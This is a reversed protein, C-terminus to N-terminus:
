RKSWVHLGKGDRWILAQGQHLHFGAAARDVVRVPVTDAYADINEGRKVSKDVLIERPHSALAERAASGYGGIKGAFFGGAFLLVLIAVAIARIWRYLQISIGGKVFLWVAFPIAPLLYVQLKSSICSLLIFTVALTSCLLRSLSTGGMLRPTRIWRWAMFLSWPAMVYWICIAYYYFPQRHHFANHARDVTQHFLLNDLYERGGEMYVATFWLTCGALIVIWAYGSWIRFFKSPSRQWLTWALTAFVPIAVGLPGKTFLALFTYLGLLLARSPTAGEADLRWVQRLALVIWLTMLMDMRLTLGLAPFYGCTFLMLLATRRQTLTLRPALWRDMVRGTLLMPILSFLSLLCMLHRGAALRCLMVLWLYLPPKDAYPLGHNSFCWLSGTRLAEDAISLYRLENDPTFDRFIMAPVMAIAALLYIRGTRGIRKREM